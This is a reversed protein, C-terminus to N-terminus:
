LEGDIISQPLVNKVDYIISKKKKWNIIKKKTLSKFKDHAVAALIADYKNNSNLDSIRFKEQENHFKKEFYPDIVDIKIQKKVLLDIIKLVMSNRVDPCNEKFTLGLILLRSQKIKIKKKKMLNILKNVIYKSMEDNVKRGALIMKPDYGVKKAKFTLYYPDVGICHGGVLGPSFDLFNWKTKAAEFVDKSRINLKDFIQALENVLAINIDRQTNEIVKAAEAVRINSALHTGADIISKYLKDIFIGSERTSGSTIKKINTIRHNKDGPNIREPSYGCFFDKNFSLKSFKELIPVCIEDTTGPYVTSEYIVINNINILKAVSKSAQKISKLDPKNKSDVPTPVTIIYVECVELDRNCNTFKLKKSKLIENSSIELTYDKREQLTKIRNLNMDYGITPYKKGFEIALPLGVYGLGVIGIRTNKTLKIPFM